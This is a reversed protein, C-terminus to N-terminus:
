SVMRKLHLGLYLEEEKNVTYDYDINMVKTITNVCKQITLDHDFVYAYLSPDLSGLLKKNTFVRNAFFNLHTIFRSYEISEEDIDNFYKRVIRLIQNTLTAIQIARKASQKPTGNLIHLAIFGIEDEPLDVHFNNKIYDIAYLGVQYEKPYLLKIENLLLNPTHEKKEKSRIMAGMLHDALIFTTFNTVEEDLYENAYSIINQSIMLYEQDLKSLISYIREKDSSKLQYLQINVDNRVKTGIQTRFGVGAGSLIVEEGHKDDVIVFNNNLIKKIIM